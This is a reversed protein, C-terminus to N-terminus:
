ICELINDAIQKLKLWDLITYDPLPNLNCQFKTVECTSSELSQWLDYARDPEKRYPYLSTM